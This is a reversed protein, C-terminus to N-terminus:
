TTSIEHQSLTSFWNKYEETFKKFDRSWFWRHAEDVIIVSGNLNENLLLEKTIVRSEFIKFGNNYVVPYNTFVKRGQKMFDIALHTAVYSKGNGPPATLCYLGGSMRGTKKFGTTLLILIVTGLLAFGAVFLFLLLLTIWIDMFLILPLLYLYRIKGRKSLHKHRPLSFIKPLNGAVM